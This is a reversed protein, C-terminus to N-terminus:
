SGGLLLCFRSRGRERFTAAARRLALLARPMRRRLEHLHLERDLSKGQPRGGHPPPVTSRHLHIRRSGQIKRNPGSAPGGAARLIRPSRAACRDRPPPDSVTPFPAVHSELKRKFEM